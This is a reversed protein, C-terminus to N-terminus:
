VIEVEEATGVVNTEGTKLGHTYCEGVLKYRKALGSSTGYGKLVISDHRLLIPTQLAGITYILDGRLTYPPCLGIYGKMTIFLRRGGCCSRMVGPLKDMLKLFWYTEEKRDSLREHLESPLFKLVKEWHSLADLFRDDKNLITRRFAEHLSQTESTHNYVDTTHPSNELFTYFARYNTM